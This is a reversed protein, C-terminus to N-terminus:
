AKQNSMAMLSEVVAKDIDDEIPPRKRKSASSVRQKSPKRKGDDSAREVPDASSTNNTMEESIGDAPSSNSEESLNDESVIRKEKKKSPKFRLAEDTKEDGDRIPRLCLLIEKCQTAGVTNDERAADESGQLSAEEGHGRKRSARDGETSSSTSQQKKNTGRNFNISTTDDTEDETDKTRVSSTVECWITTM